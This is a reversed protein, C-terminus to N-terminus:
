NKEQTSGWLGAEKLREMVKNVIREFKKQERETKARGRRYGLYYIGVAVLALIFDTWTLFWNINM